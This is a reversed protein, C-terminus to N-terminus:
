HVYKKLKNTIFGNIRVRENSTLGIFYIVITNLLFTITIGSLKFVTAEIHLYNYLLIYLSMIISIVFPRMYTYKVFSMSPFGLIRKMLYLYIIRQIIDAMIFLYLISTPPFSLRFLIYGIPICILFWFSSQIKFWKVKGSANVLQTIGGSTFAVGLVLLNAYCFEVAGEPVKGLWLRLIFELEVILPFFFWEFLLLCFKGIKYVLSYCRNYNGESYSQIIQPGSAGDFQGTFGHVYNSVTKSIAYAGNVATGFFFNLLLDSGTRRALMSMTSLINYNSFVLLEKYNKWGKVFNWKIYEPWDRKAVWHYLVFSNITTFSMAVAYYRLHNGNYYQMFIVIFLRLITNAISISTTFLFREHSGFLAGYPTNIIGLTTTIISIQYIFIADGLKGPAVNLYNYMYWLGVTEALIIIIAALGTHLLLCVNFIRNMDGDKKGLEVNIFRSTTGALSGQIFTFLTMVGGVVNFLGYDSVGLIRLVVRSTYLGIAMTVFLNIYMLMTNKAIRKNAASYNEM